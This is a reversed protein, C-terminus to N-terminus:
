EKNQVKTVIVTDVYPPKVPRSKPDSKAASGCCPDWFLATWINCDHLDCSINHPSCWDWKSKVVRFSFNCRCADPLISICSVCLLMQEETQRRREKHRESNCSRTAAYANLENWNITQGSLHLYQDWLSHSSYHLLGSVNACLKKNTKNQQKIFHFFYLYFFVHLVIFTNLGQVLRPCHCLHEVSNATTLTWNAM